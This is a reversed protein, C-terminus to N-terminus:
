VFIIAGFLHNGPDEENSPPRATDSKPIPNTTDEGTVEQGKKPDPIRSSPLKYAIGSAYFAM